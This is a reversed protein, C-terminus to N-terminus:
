FMGEANLYTLIIQKKSMRQLNIHDDYNLETTANVINCESESEINEASPKDFIDHVISNNSGDEDKDEDTDKVESSPDM